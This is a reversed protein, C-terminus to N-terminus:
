RYGGRTQDATPKWLGRNGIAITGQRPQPRLGGGQIHGDTKETKGFKYKTIKLDPIMSAGDQAFKKKKPASCMARPFVRNYSLKQASRGGKKGLPEMGRRVCIVRCRRRSSTEWVEAVTTGVRVGASRSKGRPERYSCDNKWDRNCHTEHAQCTMRAKWAHKEAGSGKGKPVKDRGQQTRSLKEEKELGEKGKKRREDEKGGTNKMKMDHL